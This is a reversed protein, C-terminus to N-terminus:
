FDLVSLVANASAKLVDRSSETSETSRDPFSYLVCKGHKSHFIWWRPPRLNNDDQPDACQLGEVRVM